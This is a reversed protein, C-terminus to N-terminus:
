NFPSNTDCTCLCNASCVAQTHAARAEPASTQVRVKLLQMNLYHQPPNHARAYSVLLNSLEQPNFDPLRGSAEGAVAELMAQFVSQCAAM